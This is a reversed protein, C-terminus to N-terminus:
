LGTQWLPTAILLGAVAFFGPSRRFQRVTYRLDQLFGTM